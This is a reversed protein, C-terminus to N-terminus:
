IEVSVPASRLEGAVSWRVQAERRLRLEAPPTMAVPIRRTTSPPVDVSSVYEDGRLFPVPDPGAYLRVGEMNHAADNVVELYHRGALILRVSPPM